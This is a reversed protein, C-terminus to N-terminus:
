PMDGAEAIVFQGRSNSAPGSVEARTRWGAFDAAAVPKGSKRLEDIAAEKLIEMSVAGEAAAALFAANVAINRIQGGTLSVQALSGFDLRDVGPVRSEQEAANVGAAKPFIDRWIREREAAGPYPFTIIFRLRRLFAPDLANKM